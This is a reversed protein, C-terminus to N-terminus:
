KELQNIRNHMHNTAGMNGITFEASDNTNAPEKKITRNNTIDEDDDEIEIDEYNSNSLSYSPRTQSNNTRNSISYNNDKESQIVEEELDELIEDKLDDM